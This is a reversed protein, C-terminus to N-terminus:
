RGGDWILINNADVPIMFIRSTSNPKTKVLNGAVAGSVYYPDGIDYGHAPYEMLDERQSIMCDAKVVFRVISLLRDEGDLAKAFQTGNFYVVDGQSFGTTDQNIKLFKENFGEVLITM